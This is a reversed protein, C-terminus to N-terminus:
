IKSKAINEAVRNQGIQRLAKVVHEWSANPTRRLWLDLTETKLRQNSAHNAQIEALLHPPIGLQIGLQHRDVVETLENSLSLVDLKGTTPLDSYLCCYVTSLSLTIRAQSVSLYQNLWKRLQM